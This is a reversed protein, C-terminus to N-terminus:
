KKELRNGQAIEESLENHKQQLSEVKQIFERRKEDLEIIEEIAHQPIDRTSLKEKVQKTKQRILDLGLM